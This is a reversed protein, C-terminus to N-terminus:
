CASTCGKDRSSSPELPGDTRLLEGKIRGFHSLFDVVVDTIQDIVADGIRDRVHCRDDEGPVEDHLGALQWSRRGTDRDHLDRCWQADDDYPEVTTAVELV